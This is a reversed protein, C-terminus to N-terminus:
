GAPAAVQVHNPAAASRARYATPTIGALERFDHIMHAQDCYGHEVALGAWSAPTGNREIAGIVRQFRRVRSFRKPTVGIRDRFRRVFAKPLVGLRSTVEAVPHGREFAAVALDVARDPNLPRVVHDLLVDEVLALREQPTTAELLRERLVAGDRGWVEDLGVILDRTASAPIAFFPAAGGPSFCVTVVCRQEETDIM